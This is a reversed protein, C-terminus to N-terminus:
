KTNTAPAAKTDQMGRAAGQASLAFTVIGVITRRWDAQLAEIGNPTMWLWLAAATAAVGLWSLWHPINKVARAWQLVFGLVGVAILEIEPIKEM